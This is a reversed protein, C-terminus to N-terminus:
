RRAHAATSGEPFMVPHNAYQTFEHINDRRIVGPDSTCMVLYLAVAAVFLVSPLWRGAAGGILRKLDYLKVM